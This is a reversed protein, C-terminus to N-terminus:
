SFDIEYLLPDGSSNYKKFTCFVPDDPKHDRDSLKKSIFTKIRNSVIMYDNNESHSKHNNVFKFEYIKNDEFVM